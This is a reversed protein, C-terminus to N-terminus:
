NVGFARIPMLLVRFDLSDDGGLEEQASVVAPKTSHTFSIRVYPANTVTLADLLYSPNFAMTIDEGNLSAQLVEKAQASDGGQGAEVTVQGETFSLRVASNREVVIRSRKIAELLDTRSVVAYGNIDKPFLSRVQPYDGDILRSTSERGVADFGIMKASGAEDLALTIPGASGYSKAIELLRSAKVLIRDSVDTKSPSWTLERVALRYRDTAMLTMNEGDIELCVSVLLPLTEDHSAASSVQTVAELWESGDVTGIVDDTSPLSPYEDLAMSHLSFRASGCVLELKTGDLKLDVPRGPLSRCIEALIRGNVLCEGSTDVSAETEVLATTEPDYASVQLTGASDAVLKIGALVPIAPRSPITKAAWTVADALVDRDVRLEM